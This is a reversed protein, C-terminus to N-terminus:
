FYAGLKLGVYLGSQLENKNEGEVTLEYTKVRYGVVFDIFERAIDINTGIDIESRPGLTADLKRPTGEPVADGTGITLDAFRPASPKEFFRYDGYIVFKNWMPVRVALGGGLSARYIDVYEANAKEIQVESLTAGISPYIWGFRYSLMLDQWKTQMSSGNLAFNVSNQASRLNVGILRNDGAATSFSVTTGSASEKSEAADSEYTNTGIDVQISSTMTQRLAQVM